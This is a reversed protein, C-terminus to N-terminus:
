WRVWGARCGPPWAGQGGGPSWAMGAIGAGAARWARWTRWASSTRWTRWARWAAQRGAQRSVQGGHGGHGRQVGAGPGGCRDQVRGERGSVGARSGSGAYAPSRWRRVARGEGTRASERIGDLPGPRVFCGYAPRHASDHTRRLATGIGNERGVEGDHTLAAAQRRRGDHHPTDGSGGRTVSRHRRGRVAPTPRNRTAPPIDPTRGGARAGRRGADTACVPRLRMPLSTRGRRVSPPCGGSDSGEPPDRRRVRAGALRDTAAGVSCSPGAVRRNRTCPHNSGFSERGCGGHPACASARSPVGPLAPTLATVACGGRTCTCRSMRTCM